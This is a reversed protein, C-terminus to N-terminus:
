QAVSPRWGNALLVGAGGVAASGLVLCGGLVASGLAAASVLGMGVTNTVIRMRLGALLVNTGDRVPSEGANVLELLEEGYRRRFGAPFARLLLKM